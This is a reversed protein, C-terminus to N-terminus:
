SEQTNSIQAMEGFFIKFYFPAPWVFIMFTAALPVRSILYAAISIYTEVDSKFCKMSLQIIILPLKFAIMLLPSLLLNNHKQMQEMVIRTHNKEMNVRQKMRVRIILLIIAAIINILFPVVSNVLNVAADYSQLWKYRYKVVCWFREDNRPDTVLARNFPQHISTLALFFVLFLVVFKVIRVSFCKNFNIGIVVNASRECAICATLWDCLSVFVSLVFDFITCNFILVQKNKIITMQSVLTYCFRVTFMVLTTPSVLSFILLYWGAGCQRVLPNVFTLIASLNSILGVVCLLIIFILVFKILLSQQALSQDVKIMEGLMSDLTLVFQVMSYQCFSGTVCEPCICAFSLQGSRKHQFCRGNNECYQRDSSCNSPDHNYYFCDPLQNQVILCMYVEDYFCKVDKFFKHYLKVRRLWPFSMITSNLRESIHLCRNEVVISVNLHTVNDTLYSLLYYSGFFSQPDTLTQAFVFMSLFTQHEDNIVLHSNSPLNKYFYSNRHILVGPMYSLVHLMHINIVPVFGFHPPIYVILLAAKYQCKDGFYNEQCQCIHEQTREDLSTCTGNNQCLVNQCANYPVRCQTGTRGLPCLCFAHGHSVVCKSNRDCTLQSCKMNSSQDCIYGTWGALCHCFPRDVNAFSHCVGHKCGIQKCLARNTYREEFFLRMAVRNVPLSSFQISYFWSLSFDITNETIIYADVHLSKNLFSLRNHHPYLLYILHKKISHMAPAYILTERNLANDQDDILYFVLQYITNQNFTILTESDFSLTLRESQFQCRLGYYSPPCFCRDEHDNFRLLIGRHCFFVTHDDVSIKEPNIVQQSSSLHYEESTFPNFVSSYIHNEFDCAWEDEGDSCDIQQDCRRNLVLCTGNKCTFETSLCRFQKRWPCMLEDDATVSCDIHRNCTQQIRIWNFKSIRFCKLERLNVNYGNRTAQKEVNSWREDSAFLCDINGDNAKYLPLCTMKTNNYQLCYHEHPSCNAIKRAIFSSPLTLPCDVEDCGNPRNWAGDCRTAQSLCPWEECNTEDTENVLVKFAEHGNCLEEYIIHPIDSSLDFQRFFQCDADHTCGIPFLEDSEDFPCHVYGDHLLRRPINQPIKKCKLRDYITIHILEEDALDVDPFCEYYANVLRHQSLPLGHSCKFLGSISTSAKTTCYIFRQQLKKM